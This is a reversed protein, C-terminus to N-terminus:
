EPKSGDDGLPKYRDDFNYEATRNASSSDCISEACNDGATKTSGSSRCECGDTDYPNIVSDM